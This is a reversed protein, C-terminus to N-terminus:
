IISQVKCQKIILIATISSWEKGFLHPQWEWLTRGVGLAPQVAVTWCPWLRHGIWIDAAQGDIWIDAAQTCLSFQLHKVPGSALHACYLLAKCDWSATSVPLAMRALCILAEFAANFTFFSTWLSCLFHRLWSQGGATQLSSSSEWVPKKAINLMIRNVCIVKISNGQAVKWLFLCLIGFSCFFFGRFNKSSMHIKVDDTLYKLLMKFSTCSHM